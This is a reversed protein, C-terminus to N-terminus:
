FGRQNSYTGGGLANHGFRTYTRYMDKLRVTM